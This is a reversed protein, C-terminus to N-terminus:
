WGCRVPLAVFSDLEPHCVPFAFSSLEASADGSFATASGIRFRAESGTEKM